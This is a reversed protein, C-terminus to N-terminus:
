DERFMVFGKISGLNFTYNASTLLKRLSTLLFQMQKKNFFRKLSIFMKNSAESLKSLINETNSIDRYVDTDSLQREHEVLYDNRDCVVVCSGKDAKKIVISKENALSRVAQWEKRSM